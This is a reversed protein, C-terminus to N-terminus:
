KKRLHLTNTSTSTTTTASVYDLASDTIKWTYSLRNLTDGAAPLFAATITYNNIDTVWTGSNTSTSKIGDVTGNEYFQFEYGFFDGTVDTTDQKYLEVYWRGNTVANVIINKKAQEIAKKCSFSMMIVIGAVILFVSNTIWKKKNQKFAM